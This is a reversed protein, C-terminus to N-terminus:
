HFADDTLLFGKIESYLAERESKTLNSVIQIRAAGGRLNFLNVYM